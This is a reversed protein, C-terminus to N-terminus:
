RVVGDWKPLKKDIFTKEIVTYQPLGKKTPIPVEGDILPQMYEIADNTVFNGEPIVWKTPFLQEANAVDGLPVMIPQWQYPKNSIRKIGAMYGSYENIAYDTAMYGMWYAEDLDTKSVCHMACRQLISPNIVKVRRTINDEVIRQLILSVGGLQKHGFKDINDEQAGILQGKEDKIGESVVAFVIHQKRHLRDVDSLFREMDFPVEPLYILDPVPKGEYVSLATSAALWGAHRGMVEMIVVTDATYTNCDFASEIAAINLYKAASGYGPSHDTGKLDNDVTKPIGMIKIDIGMKKAYYDLKSATDMSDNGGNYLFYGINHAELVEFIRKYDGHGIDTNLRYRCSGLASSPTYVMGDIIKRNQNTLDIIEEKLVGLIGNAAGYIRDIKNSELSRYFAGVVSSNIVATPGGSQAILINKKTM